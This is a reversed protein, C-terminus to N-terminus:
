KMVKQTMVHIQVMCLIFVSLVDNMGLWTLLLYVVYHMQNSIVWTFLLCWLAKSWDDRMYCCILKYVVFMHCVENLNCICIFILTEFSINAKFFTLFGPTILSKAEESHTKCNCNGCKQIWCSQCFQSDIIIKFYIIVTLTIYRLSLQFKLYM